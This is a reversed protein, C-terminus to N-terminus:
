KQLAVRFREVHMAIYAVEDDCVKKDLTEEIIKSAGEAIEYSIPYSKKIIETLDNKLVTDTLVREITFRVHSLFRAYDLSRKDIKSNFKEEIYIIIKNSLYSYKISNSLMKGNRASHIHLTIFGIEGEPFDIEYKDQLKNVIKKAMEFEVSYLTEIEVIFPNNIQEKNKLRKMAIALHDILGIHITENLEEGLEESIEALAEECIAVFEGDVRNYVEKLNEQNKKDEISFVKDVELNDELIDGFKKNFGIGKALLIKEVGQEKILVMNNNLAKIVIGKKINVGM